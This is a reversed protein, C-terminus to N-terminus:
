QDAAGVGLKERCKEEIAVPAAVLVAGVEPTARHRDSAVAVDHRLLLIRVLRQHQRGQVEAVDAALAQGIRQEPVLPDLQGDVFQSPGPMLAGALRESGTKGGSAMLGSSTRFIRTRKMWFSTWFTPKSRPTSPRLPPTSELRTAVRALSASPGALTSATMMGYLLLSKFLRLSARLTTWCNPM